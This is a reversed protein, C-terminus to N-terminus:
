TSDESLSTLFEKPFANKLMRRVICKTLPLWEILKRSNATKDASIVLEEDDLVAHAIGDRLPRLNDDIIRPFKKGRAEQLFISKLDLDDWAPKEPFLANLWPVFEQPEKPVVERLNVPVTAGRARAEEAM